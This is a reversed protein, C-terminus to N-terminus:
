TCSCSFMIPKEVKKEEVKVQEADIHVRALQILIIFKGLDPLPLVLFCGWTLTLSSPWTTQGANAPSLILLPLPRTGFSM